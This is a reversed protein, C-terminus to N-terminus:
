KSQGELARRIDNWIACNQESFSGVSAADRRGRGLPALHPQVARTEEKRPATNNQTKNWFLKM